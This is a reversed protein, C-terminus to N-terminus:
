NKGQNFYEEAAAKLDMSILEWAYGRYCDIGEPCEKLDFIREFGAKYRKREFVGNM